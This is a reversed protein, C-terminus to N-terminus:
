NLHSVLGSKANTLSNQIAARLKPWKKECEPEPTSAKLDFRDLADALIENGDVPKFDRPVRKGHLCLNAADGKISVVEFQVEEISNQHLIVYIHKICANTIRDIRGCAQNFVGYAYELSGVILNECQDFSFANACKIGMLLVCSSGATRAM